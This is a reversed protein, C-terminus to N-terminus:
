SYRFNTNFFKANTSKAWWDYQSMFTYLEDISEDLSRGWFYNLNDMLGDAQISVKYILWKIYDLKPRFYINYNQQTFGLDVILQKVIDQVFATSMERFTLLARDINTLVSSKTDVLTHTVYKYLSSHAKHVSIISNLLESMKAGDIRIKVERAKHLRQAVKNDVTSFSDGLGFASLRSLSLDALYNFTSCADSCSTCESM